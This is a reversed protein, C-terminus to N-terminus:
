VIERSCQWPTWLPMALEPLDIAVSRRLLSRDLGIGGDVREVAEGATPSVTMEVTEDRNSCRSFTCHPPALLIVTEGVACAEGALAVHVRHEALDFAAFHLHM